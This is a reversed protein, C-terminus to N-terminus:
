NNVQTISINYVLMIYYKQLNQDLASDAAVRRGFETALDDYFAEDHSNDSYTFPWELGFALTDVDLSGSKTKFVIPSNPVFTKTIYADRKEANSSGNANTNKVADEFKGAVYAMYADEKKNMGIDALDKAKTIESTLKGYCWPQVAYDCGIVSKYDKTSNNYDMGDFTFGIPVYYEDDGFKFIDYSSGEYNIHDDTGYLIGQSVKVQLKVEATGDFRIRLMDRLNDGPGMKLNTIVVTAQTGSKHVTVKM